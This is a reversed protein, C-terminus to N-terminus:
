SSGRGFVVYKESYFQNVVSSIGTIFATSVGSNDTRVFLYTPVPRSYPQFNGSEIVYNPPYEVIARVTM